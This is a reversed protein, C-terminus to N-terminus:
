KNWCSLVKLQLWWQIIRWPLIENADYDPNTQSSERLQENELHNTEIRKVIRKLILRFFLNYFYAFLGLWSCFWFNTQSPNWIPQTDMRILKFEPFLSSLISNNKTWIKFFALKNKPQNKFKFPTETWWNVSFWFFSFSIHM